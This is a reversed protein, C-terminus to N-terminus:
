LTGYDITIEEGKRIDRGAYYIYNKHFANPTDSHNLHWGVSMRGFDAPCMYYGDGIPVCYALMDKLSSSSKLYRIRDGKAFLRLRTNKKITQLAFVGIGHISSPRLVFFMETTNLKPKM